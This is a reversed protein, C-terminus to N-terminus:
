SFSLREFKRLYKLIVAIIENINFFRFSSANRLVIKKFVFLCGFLMYECMSIIYEIYFREFRIWCM